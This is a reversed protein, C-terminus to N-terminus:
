RGGTVCRVQLAFIRQMTRLSVGEDSVKAYWAYHFTYPDTEDNKLSSTWYRGGDFTYGSSHEYGGTGWAAIIPNLDDNEFLVSYDQETPVRWPYPCLLAAYREVYSWNYYHWTNSLGNYSRCDPTLDDWSNDPKSCAPTRIADSWVQDGFKWIKNSAAFTPSDATTEDSGENYLDKSCAAFVMAAALM